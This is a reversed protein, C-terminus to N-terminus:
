RTTIPLHAEALANATARVVVTGPKHTSRIVVQARGHFLQRRNSQYDQIKSYDGSAVGAIKAPGDVVFTVV